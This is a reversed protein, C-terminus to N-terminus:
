ICIPSSPPNITCWLKGNPYYTIRNVLIGNANYKEKSELVGNPYYFIWNSVKKSKLYSGSYELQGDPYFKKWNGSRLGTDFYGEEELKGNAFFRKYPGDENGWIEVPLWFEKKKGYTFNQVVYPKGDPFTWTWEGHRQGKQFNGWAIKRGNGILFSECHGDLKKEENIECKEYLDGNSYYIYNFLNDSATYINKKREFKANEPMGKPIGESKCNSFLILSLLSFCLIKWLKSNM